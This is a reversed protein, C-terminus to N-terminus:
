PETFLYEATITVAATPAASGPTSLWVSLGSCAYDWPDWCYSSILGEYNGNLYAFEGACNDITMGIGSNAGILGNAVCGSVASQLFVSGTGDVSLVTATSTVETWPKALYQGQYYRTDGSSYGQDYWHTDIWWSEEASARSLQLTGALRRRNSSGFIGDESLKLTASVTNGCFEGAGAQACGQGIVVGTGTIGTEHNEFTGVYQLSPRVFGFDDSAEGIRMRVQGDRSLLADVEVVVDDITASGHYYGQWVTPATVPESPPPTTGPNSAPVSVPGSSGDCAAIALLATGALVTRAPVGSGTRGATLSSQSMM